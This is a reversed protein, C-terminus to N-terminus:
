LSRPIFHGSFKVEIEEPLNTTVALEYERDASSSQVDIRWGQWPTPYTKLGIIPQCHVNQGDLLCQVSFHTGLRTRKEVLADKYMQAIFILTGGYEGTNLKGEMGYVNDIHEVAITLQRSPETFTRPLPAHVFNENLSPPEGFPVAELLVVEFPRLAFEMEPDHGSKEGILRAKHPHWRYLDWKDKSAVGWSANVRLTVLADNWTCNNLAIFARKGDTCCYGYPEVKWPDGIVLTSHAFCATQERMMAMWEAMQKREPSTLWEKDSWPQFLLSGRCMDMVFGEQWREVGISSNWEWNSLWVGLSDKGLNPVDDRWWHAQDLGLTVGDRAYLTPSTSPTSAELALGSEFLTDAHLLWWPSRYGWYLMLFVDPDTEDFRNLSWIIASQIAETSYIGPFHDHNPNHCIAMADDFKLLGVNNEKMHFRFGNTFISKFPETARCYAIIRPNSPAGYSGDYTLAPAIVPNGGIGWASLSSSIWLGLSSGSKELASKIQKFGEPFGDPRAREVDGYYDVWFQISYYDFACGEQVQGETVHGIHQLIIPETPWFGLDLEKENNWSGFSEMITILRDHKRVTRRMRSRIHQLFAERAGGKAESVGLVAEMTNLKEGSHLMEGPYQRLIVHRDQGIAWGSPHALSLYFSDDVYVPFGQEGETVEEDVRYSGLRVNMIRAGHESPNSVEVRKHLTASNRTWTYIAKAFLGCEAEKLEVIFEGQEGEKVVQRGIVKWVPTRFAEGVVFFQEFQAPYMRGLSAMDRGEHPDLANLRETRSVFGTLQLAIINDQGFRLCSHGDSGPTLLVKAPEHWRDTTERTGVEKGNIFIRIYQFDLFGIGGIVLTLPTNIDEEPLFAHTRAWRYREKRYRFSEINVPSQCGDWESDNLYPQSFGEQFGSELNPDLVGEDTDKVKWGPIWIRTDAADLDVEFELGDAINLKKGSGLNEWSLARLEEELSLSYRFYASSLTVGGEHDVVTCDSRSMM